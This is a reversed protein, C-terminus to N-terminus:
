HSAPLCRTCTENGSASLGHSLFHPAAGFKWGCRTEWMMPPFGHHTLICHYKGSNTNVVYRQTDPTRPLSELHQVRATLDLEQRLHSATHSDLRALKANVSALSGKFERLTKALSTGSQLSAVHATMGVLPASRAYHLIIPSSWRALLQIKFLELQLSSLYVAGTARWTHKGFRRGGSPSTLAEGLAAAFHEVLAVMADGSTYEGGATPFLPFDEEGARAGFTSRILDLQRVAAHYPCATPSSSQCLCGWSRVCGVASPDTKSVPLSWTVTSTEADLTLSSAKALAGEIERLVFFTFLVALNGSGLPGGVVLPESPWPRSTLRGFPLPESQRGPGMGRQTSTTFQRAALSLQDSWAFGAAIHHEKAQSLYNGASRYGGVKLSAGLAEIKAQTLPLVPCPPTEWVGDAWWAAHLKTWTAWYSDATSGAARIDRRYTALAEAKDSENASAAMASRLNGRQYNYIM